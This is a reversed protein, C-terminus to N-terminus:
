KVEERRAALAERVLELSGRRVGIGGAASAVVGRSVGLMRAAGAVGRQQVLRRLVKREEENLLFPAHTM